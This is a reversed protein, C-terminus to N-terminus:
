TNIPVWPRGFIPVKDILRDPHSVIMELADGCWQFGGSHCLLTCSLVGREADWIKCAKRFEIQLM